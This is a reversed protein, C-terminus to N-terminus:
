LKYLQKETRLGCAGGWEEGNLVLPLLRGNAVNEGPLKSYAALVLIVAVDAHSWCKVAAPVLLHHVM